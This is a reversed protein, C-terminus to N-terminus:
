SASNEMIKLEGPTQGPLTSVTQAIERAFASM